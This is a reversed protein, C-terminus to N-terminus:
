RKEGKKAKILAIVGFIGIIYGIGGLIDRLGPGSQRTELVLRKLPAVQKEVATEMLRRWKDESWPPPTATQQLPQDAATSSRAQTTTPSRATTGAVANESLYDDATLLWHNRHGEGALVVLLLDLRKDRAASPVPFSFTGQDDTSTQLLVAGTARDQVSIEANRAPRGGSFSSEGIITGAEAYAFVNVKHADATTSLTLCVVLISLYFILPNM